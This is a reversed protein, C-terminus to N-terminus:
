GNISIFLPIIGFLLLIKYEKRESVVGFVTTEKAWQKWVLM